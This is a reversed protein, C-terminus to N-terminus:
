RGAKTLAEKVASKLARSTTSAGSVADVDYSNKSIMEKPLKKIAKAGIGTESQKLIEINKIKKNDDLTVRVIIEDGMGQDSSGLYQNNSVTYQEQTSNEENSDESKTTQEKSSKPYITELGEIKEKPWAANQGAIKGSILCEALNEGTQYRGAWIGGLEGASYLHGIPHNDPDVVQCHSNRRPGGQTNLISQQVPIAYYPGNASFEKLTDGNRNFAYDYKEKAFVNFDHVTRELIEPKADIKQALENLSDAKIVNKLADPVPNGEKAAFKDYQKQDFIIHPHSQNQPVLWKGHNYVHGHRNGEDERYYRSGDDGVLMVSGDYTAKWDAIVLNGREGDPVKLVLGHLFGISEFNNMHWLDAGAEEGLKIGIGKNYLTGIPTLKDAGLYDEKMQQNNEFGGTALVVGNAASINRLVHDHDIQVGVVNNDSDMILHKAPSSYWVDINPRKKVEKRLLKWLGADMFRDTVSLMDSGPFEPYEITNSILPGRLKSFRPDDFFDHKYSHPHSVGLYRKLYTTMNAMGEVFTDVMEEDAHMPKTLAHFYEKEANYDETTSIMQASYRTNGGEYGEPASDVLLVKAGEDAAFRAATAGAGGFGLVIVDYKRYFNVDDKNLRTM